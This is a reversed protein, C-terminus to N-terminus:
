TVSTKHMPIAKAGRCLLYFPAAEPYASICVGEISGVGMQWGNGQTESHHDRYNVLWERTEAVALNGCIERGFDISM